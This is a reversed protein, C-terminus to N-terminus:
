AKITSKDIKPSERPASSSARIRYVRCRRGPTDGGLAPPLSDVLRRVADQADLEGARSPNDQGIGIVPEGHGVTVVDNGDAVQAVPFRKRRDSDRVTLIGRDAM